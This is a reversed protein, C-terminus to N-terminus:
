KRFFLSLFSVLLVVVSAGFLLRVTGEAGFFPTLYGHTVLIMGAVISALSGVVTMKSLRSVRDIENSWNSAVYATTGPSFVGRMGGASGTVGALMASIEIVYINTSLAFGILGVLPLAEAVILARSYGIRDGLSGLIISTGMNFLVVLLVLVGILVLGFGLANLYLSFSLTVFGIAISRATRSILLFKFSSDIKEQSDSFVFISM